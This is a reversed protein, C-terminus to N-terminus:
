RSAVRWSPHAACVRLIAAKATSAATAWNLRTAYEDYSSLCLQEYAQPDDLFAAIVAAYADGRAQMPFLRGNVGDRVSTSIGGTDTAMAPLGQANGEALVNANCEARSPLLLFHSEAYLQAMARRGEDSHKSIYPLRRVFAPMEGAPASGLVALEVDVGRRQLEAATEVAIDGGKREWHGGIFLLRVPRAARRVALSAVVEDRTPLHEINAGFPVVALKAAPVGYHAIASDRAWNSTYIALTVRELARQEALNGKRVTDDTFDSFEPYYGVLGAFTADTWLVTPIDAQLNAIPLTGHSLVADYRRRALQGTVQRAYAAVAAPEREIQVRKGFRRAVWQRARLALHRRGLEVGIFEVDMGAARLARAIHNDPGYWGHSDTKPYASAFLLRPRHAPTAHDGEAAGGESAIAVENM